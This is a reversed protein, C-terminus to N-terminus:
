VALSEAIPEWWAEFVYPRRVAVQAPCTTHRHFRYIGESTLEDVGENHDVDVALLSPYREFIAALRSRETDADFVPRCYHIYILTKSSIQALDRVYNAPDNPDDPSPESIRLYELSKLHPGIVALADYSAFAQTRLSILNPLLVELSKVLLTDFTLTDLHKISPIRALDDWIGEGCGQFTELVELSAPLSDSFGFSTSLFRLSTGQSQLFHTLAECGDFILTSLHTLAVSTPLSKIVKTLERPNRVYLDLRQLCRLHSLISCLTDLSNPDDDDQVFTTVTESLTSNAQLALLLSPLRSINISSQSGALMITSGDSNYRLEGLLIVEYILPLVLEHLRRSVTLFPHLKNRHPSGLELLIMMWIETPIGQTM